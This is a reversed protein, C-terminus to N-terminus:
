AQENAYEKVSRRFRSIDSIIKTLDKEWQAAEEPTPATDEIKFSNLGSTLGILTGIAGRIAEPAKRGMAKRTLTKGNGNIPPTRIGERHQKLSEAQKDRPEKSIQTATYLRVDGKEVAEVIEPIAEHRLNRARSVSHRSVNLLSGADTNGMIPMDKSGCNRSWHGGRDTNTLKSAIMARQSENLHRRHLNLSVVFSVLTGVRDWERYQPAVEAMACAMYRNRGDIIKGEHRWIAERLGNAKIDATLEALSEESMLPFLEAVPHFPSETM